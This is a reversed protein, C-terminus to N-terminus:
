TALDSHPASASMARYRLKRYDELLPELTEYVDIANFTLRIYFITLARLYRHM